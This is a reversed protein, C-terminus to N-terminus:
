IQKLSTCLVVAELPISDGCVATIIVSLRDAYAPFSLPSLILWTFVQIRSSIGGGRDVGTSNSMRPAPQVDVNRM